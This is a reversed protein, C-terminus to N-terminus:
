APVVGVRIRWSAPQTAAAMMVKRRSRTTPAAGSVVSAVVPEIRKSGSTMLTMGRRAVKVTSRNAVRVFLSQLGCFLRSGVEEGFDGLAFAHRDFALTQRAEFRDDEVDGQGGVDFGRRSAQTEAM